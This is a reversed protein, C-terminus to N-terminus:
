KVECKIPKGDDNLKIALAQSHPLDNYFYEHGDLCIIVISPHCSVKNTVKGKDLEIEQTKIEIDDLGCSSLLFILLFLCLTFLVDKCRKYCGFFKIGIM